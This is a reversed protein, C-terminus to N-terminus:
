HLPSDNDQQEGAWRQFASNENAFLEQPSGIEVVKGGDMMWVQDCRKLINVRQTALVM